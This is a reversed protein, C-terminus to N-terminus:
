AAEEVLALHQQPSLTTQDAFSVRGKLMEQEVVPAFGFPKSDVLTVRVLRRQGRLWNAPHHIPFHVGITVTQGITMHCVQEELEPLMHLHGLVGRIHQPPLHMAQGPGTPLPELAELKLSVWDGLNVQSPRDSGLRTLLAPIKARDQPHYLHAIDPWADATMPVHLSEARICFHRDEGGMMGITPVGEVYAFSVGKELVERKVLTCAGQGWVEIAQRNVLKERFEAPEYGRGELQYPHQLWVQPAAHLVGQQTAPNHWHTWYVACVIPKDLSWLSKLTTKDCILDADCFWIADYAHELAYQIIRNKLHGVRGMAEQTWQHTVPHQDDYGGSTTEPSLITGGRKEVFTKLLLSSRPDTNDDVFCYSVTVNKPLVQWALSELYAGLIDPPKRVTTGILIKHQEVSPLPRLVVTM